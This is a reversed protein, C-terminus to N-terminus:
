CIINVLKKEKARSLAVYRMTWEHITYPFDFTAGQSKHVSICYRPNFYKPIEENPVTFEVNGDCECVLSEKEDFTKIYYSECNVIGYKACAISGILPLGKYLYMDQGSRSKEYKKVFCFKTIKYQSMWKKMCADNIAKRLSNHYCINFFCKNQKYTGLDINDPDKCEEFFANDARRCKTLQVKNFGCIEKLITSNKYDFEAIDCVPALQAFDGAIIWRIEPFNEHIYYFFRYFMEKTMSIEDVIIYKLSGIVKKMTAKNAENKIKSFFRHLTTGNIINCAKNTPALGQYSIGKKELAKIIAKILSSKGTGARGDLNFSGYKEVLEEAWADFENTGIDKIVNWKKAEMTFVDTCIVPEIENKHKITNEFKYKPIGEAWFQNKTIEKVKDVAKPDDFKMVVQDTNLYVLQCNDIGKVLEYAKYLEIAELDLIQNFVPVSNDNKVERTYTKIEYLSRGEEIEHVKYVMDNYQIANYSAEEINETFTLTGRKSVKSGFCGIFSNFIRKTVKFMTLDEQHPQLKQLVYDIFKNFHNHKLISSPRLVYKISSDTIIGKQLGFSVLPYSYWGNGKFPFYNKTEIFFFGTGLKGEYAKPEDLSSYIAYNYESYRFHKKPM